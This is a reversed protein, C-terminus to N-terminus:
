AYSRCLITQQHGLTGRRCRCHTAPVATAGALPTAIVTVPVSDNRETVKSGDTGTGAITLSHTPRTISADFPVTLPVTTTVQLYISPNSSVPTAMVKWNQMWLCKQPTKTQLKVVPQQSLIQGVTLPGVHAPDTVISLSAFPASELFVMQDPLEFGAHVATM